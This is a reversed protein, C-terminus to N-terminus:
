RLHRVPQDGAVRHEPIPWGSGFSDLKTLYLAQGAQVNVTYWDDPPTGGLGDAGVGSVYGTAAVPLQTILTLTSTSYVDLFNTGPGSYADSVFLQDNYYGIDQEYGTSADQASELIAGTTPDIEYLMGGFAGTDTQTVAWLM